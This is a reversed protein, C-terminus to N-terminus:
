RREASQELERLNEQEEETFQADVPAQLKLREIPDSVMHLFVRLMSQEREGCTKQFETLSNKLAEFTDSDLPAPATPHGISMAKGGM